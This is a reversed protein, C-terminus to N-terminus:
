RFTIEVEARQQRSYGEHEGAESCARRPATFGCDTSIRRKGHFCGDGTPALTVGRLCIDAALRFRLLERRGSGRALVSEFSSPFLCYNFDLSDCFTATGPPEAGVGVTKLM